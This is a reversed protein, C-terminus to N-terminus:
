LAAGVGTKVSGRVCMLVVHVSGFCKPALFAVLSGMMVKSLGALPVILHNPLAASLKHLPQTRHLSM